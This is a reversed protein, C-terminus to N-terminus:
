RPYGSKATGSPNRRQRAAEFLIVAGAVAANLSEVGAALPIGVARTALAATAASVGEAESGVVIAAPGTWDVEAYDEGGAAAVAVLPLEARLAAAREPDLAGLPVRWHAGMGARVAKPNFPDVTEPTLLAETVGAGAAARLLAGLNGPDRLRDVVLVLPTRAADPALAPMPVVALVGQSHVVDSLADFAKAAVERIETGHPLGAPPRADERVLVLLPAVGAELADAVARAGEVVFAGEAARRDRRALLGRVRALTPNSPSSIRDPATM